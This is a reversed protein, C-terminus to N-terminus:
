VKQMTAFLFLNAVNRFYVSRNCATIDDLKSRDESNGSSAFIKRNM